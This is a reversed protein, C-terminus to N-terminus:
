VEVRRIVGRPPEAESQDGAPIAAVGSLYNELSDMSILRRNGIMVSHILGQRAWSDLTHRKIPTLPDVKRLEAVAAASTRMRGVDCVGKQKTCQLPMLQM